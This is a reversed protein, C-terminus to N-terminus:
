QLDLEVLWFVLGRWLGLRQFLPGECYHALVRFDPFILLLYVDM